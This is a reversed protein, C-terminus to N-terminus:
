ATVRLTKSGVNSWYKYGVKVTIEDDLELGLAMVKFTGSGTVTLMEKPLYGSQSKLYVTLPKELLQEDLLCNLTLEVSGDAPIEDPGFLRLCPFRFRSKQWRGRPLFESDSEFEWTAPLSTTIGMGDFNEDAFSTKIIISFPLCDTRAPFSEVKSMYSSALPNVITYGGSRLLLIQWISCDHYWTTIQRCESISIEHEREPLYSKQGDQDVLIRDLRLCLNEASPNFALRYLDGATVDFTFLECIM